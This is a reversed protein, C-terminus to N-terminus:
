REWCDSVEEELRARSETAFEGPATEGRVECGAETILPHPLIRAAGSRCCTLKEALRTRSCSLIRSPYSKKGPLIRPSLSPGTHGEKRGPHRQQEMFLVDGQRRRASYLCRSPWGPPMGPPARASVPSIAASSAAWGM